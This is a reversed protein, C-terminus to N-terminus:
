QKSSTKFSTQIIRIRYISQKIIPVQWGVPGDFFIGGTYHSKNMPQVTSVPPFGPIDHPSDDILPGSSM